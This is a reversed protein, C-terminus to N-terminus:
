RQMLQATGTSLMKFLFQWAKYSFYHTTNPLTLRVPRVLTNAVAFLMFGVVSVWLIMEFGFSRVVGLLIPCSGSSKGCDLDVMFVIM